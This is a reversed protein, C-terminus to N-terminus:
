SLRDNDYVNHVDYDNAYYIMIMVIMSLIFMIIMVMIMVFLIMLSKVMLNYTVIDDDSDYVNDHYDHLIKTDHEIMLKMM